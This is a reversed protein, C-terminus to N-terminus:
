LVGKEIQSKIENLLSKINKKLLDFNESKYAEMSLTVIEGLNLNQNSQM